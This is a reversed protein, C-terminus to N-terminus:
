VYACLPPSAPERLVDHTLIDRVMCLTCYCPYLNCELLSSLQTGEAEATIPEAPQRRFISLTLDLTRNTQVQTCQTPCVVDRLSPLARRCDRFINNKKSGMQCLRLIGQCSKSQTTLFFLMYTKDQSVHHKIRPIGM